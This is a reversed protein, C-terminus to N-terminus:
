PMAGEGTYFPTTTGARCAYEWEVESPLRYDQRRTQEVAQLVGPMVGPSKNWPSNAADLGTVDNSGAGTKSYYSPNKGM